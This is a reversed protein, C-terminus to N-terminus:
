RGLISLEFVAMLFFVALFGLTYSAARSKSQSTAVGGIACAGSLSAFILGLM